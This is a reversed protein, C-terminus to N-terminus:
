VFVHAYAVSEPVLAVLFSDISASIGKGIHTVGAQTAAAASTVATSLRKIQPIVRSYAFAAGTNDENKCFKLLSELKAVLGANEPCVLPTKMISAEKKDLSDRLGEAKQESEDRAAQSPSALYPGPGSAEQEDLDPLVIEAGCGNCYKADEPAKKSCKSCFVM